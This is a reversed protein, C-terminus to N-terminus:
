PEAFIYAALFGSLLSVLGFIPWGYILFVFPGMYPSGGDAQHTSFDIVQWIWFYAVVFFTPLLVALCAKVFLPITRLRRKLVRGVFVALVFALAIPLLILLWDFM